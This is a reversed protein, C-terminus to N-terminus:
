IIDEYIRYTVNEGTVITSSDQDLPNNSYNPMAGWIHYYNDPAQENYWARWGIIYETGPDYDNREVTLIFRGSHALFDKASENFQNIHRSIFCRNNTYLRLSSGIKTAADFPTPSSGDLYVYSNSVETIDKTVTAQLIREGYWKINPLGWWTSGSGIEMPDFGDLNGVPGSINYTYWFERGDIEYDYYKLNITNERIPTTDFRNSYSPWTVSAINMIQTSSDLGAPEFITNGRSGMPADWNFQMKRNDDGGRAYIRYLDHTEWFDITGASWSTRWSSDYWTLNENPWHMNLTVAPAPEADPWCQIASSDWVYVEEAGYLEMVRLGTSSYIQKSM